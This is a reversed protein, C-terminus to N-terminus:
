DDSNETPLTIRAMRTLAYEQAVLSRIQANIEDRQHRLDALRTRAQSLLLNVTAAAEDFPATPEPPDHVVTQEYQEALEEDTTWPGMGDAQGLKVLDYETAESV